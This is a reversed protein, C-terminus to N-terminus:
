KLVARLYYVWFAPVERLVMHPIVGRDGPGSPVTLVNWGARQYALKIRPLHYFQSVAIVRARGNAGTFFPVTDAVTADTNVGQSDVIIARRPVGAAVAMDRMVLAENYGTDGVGGSVILRRVFRRKYLQEATTMRDRLSTSPVGREHVQAGFVVAIDAPRRYDTTGFFFVQLLPFAIACAAATALLVAAAPWRRRPRAPARVAAWAVYVLVLAVLLSLPLPVSPRILGRGWVRYFDVINLVAMVAFAACVAVTTWRRWAQMHPAAAYALLAAGVACFLAISLARPTSPPPAVWWINADFSPLRLEAVVNLLTFGGLFLAFGRALAALPWGREREGSLVAAAADPTATSRPPRSASSGPAYRTWTGDDAPPVAGHLAAAPADDRASGMSM